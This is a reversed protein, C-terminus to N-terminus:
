FISFNIFDERVVYNVFLRNKERIFEEISKWIEKKLFHKEVITAHIHSTGRIFVCIPMWTPVNLSDLIFYILILFLEIIFCLLRYIVSSRTEILLIWPLPVHLLNGNEVCNAVILINSMM